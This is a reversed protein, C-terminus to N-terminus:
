MFRLCGAGLMDGCTQPFAPFFWFGGPAVASETPTKGFFFRSEWSLPQWPAADGISCSLYQGTPMEAEWHSGDTQEWAM